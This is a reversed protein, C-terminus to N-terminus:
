KSHSRAGREPLLDLSAGTWASLARHGRCELEGLQLAKAISIPLPPAGQGCAAVDTTQTTRVRTGPMSDGRVRTGRVLTHTGRLVWQENMCTDLADDIETDIRTARSHEVCWRRSESVVRADRAGSVRGGVLEAESVRDRTPTGSYAGRGKKTETTWEGADSNPIALCARQECWGRSAAVDKTTCSSAGQWGLAASVHM